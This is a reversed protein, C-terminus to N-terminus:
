FTFTTGRVADALEGIWGHADTLAGRTHGADTEAIRLFDVVKRTTDVVQESAAPNGGHATTRCQFALAHATQRLKDAVEAM